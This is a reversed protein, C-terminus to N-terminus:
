CSTNRWFPDIYWMIFHDHNANHVTQSLGLDSPPRHCAQRGSTWVPKCKVVLPLIPKRSLANFPLCLVRAHPTGMTIYIDCYSITMIPMTSQQSLGLDSPPRHCAQRGSRWVPKCKVVLPLIPVEQSLMSHCVSCGLMLHEWLLSKYIVTHFPWSQCQPSNHCDWIQHSTQPMSTQWKGEYQSVSSWLHCFQSVRLSLANFPLCLVRAHPTGQFWMFPWSQCQPSNHCDWIQHSTLPMSTQWEKLSVSSWLHCWQSGPSLMWHCDSCGPMLHEKLTIFLIFHDHNANHVTTVTGFQHSTQPMSTQWKRWVPM